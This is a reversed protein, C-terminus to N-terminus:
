FIESVTLGAGHLCQVSIRDGLRYTVTRNDATSVKVLKRDPDVVWFERCGTELCLSEKEYIEAATNSPSLVEIVLEPTGQLNDDPHVQDWRSKSVAAVDAVWLEHEPLPRFALEMGVLYSDGALGRLLDVLRIQLRYHRAKPRTVKVIEGHHLEYYVDGTHEPLARFQEVTM